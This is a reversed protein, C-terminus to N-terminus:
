HREWGLGQVVPISTRVAADGEPCWSEDGGRGVAGGTGRLVGSYAAIITKM